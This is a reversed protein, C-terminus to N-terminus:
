GLEATPRGRAFVDGLTGYLPFNLMGRCCRSATPAADHLERDQARRRTTACPKDIGFGEGFVHFSRRGTRRAVERMGPQRPTTSHLFDAFYSPRCTSRPTSASPM